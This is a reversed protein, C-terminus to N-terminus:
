KLDKKIMLGITKHIAIKIAQWTLALRRDLLKDLTLWEGVIFFKSNRILDKSEYPPIITCLPTVCTVLEM